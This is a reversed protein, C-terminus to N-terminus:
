IEQGLKGPWIEQGINEPRIEQGINGPWIKWSYIWGFKGASNGQGIKWALNESWIERGFEGAM